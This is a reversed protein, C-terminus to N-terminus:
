NQNQHRLHQKQFDRGSWRRKQPRHEETTKKVELVQVDGVVHENVSLYKEEWM